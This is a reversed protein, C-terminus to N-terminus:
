LTAQTSNPSQEMFQARQGQDTVVLIKDNLASMMPIDGQQLPLAAIVEGTQYNLITYSGLDHGAMARLRGGIEPMVLARKSAM